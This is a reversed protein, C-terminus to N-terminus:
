FDEPRTKSFYVKEGGMTKFHRPIKRSKRIYKGDAHVGYGFGCGSEGNITSIQLGKKSFIFAWECGMDMYELRTYFRASDGYVVLRNYMIGMHYSPAGRNIDIYFLVTTDSEPYVRITASGKEGRDYSYTGAYKSTLQAPLLPVSLIWLFASLVPRQM